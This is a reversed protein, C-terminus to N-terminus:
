QCCLYLQGGQSWLFMPITLNGLSEIQRTIRCNNVFPVAIRRGVVPTRSQSTPSPGPSRRRPSWCRSHRSWCYVQLSMSLSSLPTCDPLAYSSSFVQEFTKKRTLPVTGARLLDDLGSLRSRFINAIGTLGREAVTCGICCKIGAM